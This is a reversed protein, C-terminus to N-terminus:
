SILFSLTFSGQTFVFGLLVAPELLLWDGWLRRFNLVKAQAARDRQQAPCHQDTAGTEADVLVHGGDVGVRYM